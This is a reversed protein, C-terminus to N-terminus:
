ASQAAAAERGMVVKYQALVDKTVKSPTAKDIMGQEAAWAAIRRKQDTSLARPTDPLDGVPREDTETSTLAEPATEEPEDPALTLQARETPQEVPAPAGVTEKYKDPIAAPDQAHYATSIQEPIRGRDGIVVGHKRAWERVAKNQEPDAKAPVRGGSKTPTPTYSPAAAPRSPTASRPMKGAKRAAAIFKKLSDRLETAHKSALDIEYSASDLGFRVTEDAEIDGDLDDILTIVTKQAM